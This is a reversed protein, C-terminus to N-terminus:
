HFKHFAAKIRYLILHPIRCLIRLLRSIDYLYLKVLMLRLKLVTKDEIKNSGAALSSEYYRYEVYSSTIKEMIVSVEPFSVALRECYDYPTEQIKRPRRKLAGWRLLQRYVLQITMRHPLFIVALSEMWKPLGLKGFRDKIWALLRKWYAFPDYSAQVADGGTRKLLRSIMWRILSYLLALILIAFIVVVIGIVIQLVINLWAPGEEAPVFGGAAANESGGEEAAKPSRMRQTLKVMTSILYAFIGIIFMFSKEFIDYLFGATGSIHPFLSDSGKSLYIILVVVAALVWGALPNNDEGANSYIYLSFINLFLAIIVWVTGGPIAGKLLHSILFSLFTLCIFLDFHGFVNFSKKKFAIYVSRFILWVMTLQFLVANVISGADGSFTFLFVGSQLSALWFLFVLVASNILGITIFMMKKMSLFMNMITLVGTLIFLFVPNIYAECKLLGTIISYYFVIHFCTESFILSLKLLISNNQM